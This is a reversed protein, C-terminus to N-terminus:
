IIHGPLRGSPLPDDADAPAKLPATPKPRLVSLLVAAGVTVIVFLLTTEVGVHVDMFTVMLMKVGIFCLIIGLAAGLYSFQTMAAALAFYLARLGM